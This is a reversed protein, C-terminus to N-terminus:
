PPAIILNVRIVVRPNSAAIRLPNKWRSTIRDQPLVENCNFLRNINLITSLMAHLYQLKHYSIVKCSQQNKPETGHWNQM